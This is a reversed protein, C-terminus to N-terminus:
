WRARSIVLDGLPLAIDQPKGRKSGQGFVSRRRRFRCCTPRSTRAACMKNLARSEREAVIRVAIERGEGRNESLAAAWTNM